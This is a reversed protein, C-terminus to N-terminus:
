PRRARHRSPPDASTRHGDEELASYYTVGTGVVVHDLMPIGQRAAARSLMQAIRVDTPHPRSETAYIQCNPGGAPGTM